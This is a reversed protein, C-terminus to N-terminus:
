AVGANKYLIKVCESYMRYKFRIDVLTDENLLNGTTDIKYKKSVDALITNVTSDHYSEVFLEAVIFM